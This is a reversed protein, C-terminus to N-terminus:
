VIEFTCDIVTPKTTDVINTTVSINVNVLVTCSPASADNPQITFTLTGSDDNNLADDGWSISATNGVGGNFSLVSEIGSFVGAGFNWVTVSDGAVEVTESGSSASYLINIPDTVHRAKLTCPIASGPRTGDTITLNFDVDTGATIGSGTIQEEVRTGGGNSIVVRADSSSWDYSADSPNGNITTPDVATQNDFLYFIVHSLKRLTILRGCIVSTSRTGDNAYITFDGEQSWSTGPFSYTKVRCMEDFTLSAGTVGALSIDGSPATFVFGNVGAANVGETGAVAPQHSQGDIITIGNGVLQRVALPRATVVSIPRKTGAESGDQACLTFDGEQNWSTGPFSYTNVRCMEDFTLSAGAVGVLSIDGSPATFVFGNVGAANVGETGEVAPQYSQGDIITVGNGVLQRLALQVGSITAWQENSRSGDQVRIIFDGEQNWSTGPFSYAQVRGMPDLTMSPGTVGALSIDASEVYFSFGEHGARNVGETGATAPSYSQGDIITFGNVLARLSLQVAATRKTVGSVPDKLQITFSGDKDWDTTDFGALVIKGMIKKTDGPDDHVFTISRAAGDFGAIDDQDVVWNWYLCGDAAPDDSVTLEILNDQQRVTGNANMIGVLTVEDPSASM